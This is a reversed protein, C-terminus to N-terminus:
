GRVPPSCVPSVRTRWSRMRNMGARAHSCQVVFGFRAVVVRNMGARAPFVSNPLKQYGNTNPNMGARAPFM